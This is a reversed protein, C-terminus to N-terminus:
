PFSWRLMPAFTDRDLPLSVHEQVILWKGGIKRYVDTVRVTYAFRTGDKAHVGSVHQLSRGYGVDGSVAVDLDSMAFELPGSIAAFMREFADRYEDWGFHVGPPGIVDFVLLSEGPAYVAMIADVDKENMAQTFTKELTRLQSQDATAAAPARAPMM